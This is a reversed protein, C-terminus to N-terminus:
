SNEKVYLRYDQQTFINVEILSQSIDNLAIANTYEEAENYGAFRRVLLYTDKKIDSTGFSLMSVKLADYGTERHVRVIDKRVTKAIDNSVKSLVYYIAQGSKNDSVKYTTDSAVHITENDTSACSFLLLIATLLTLRKM